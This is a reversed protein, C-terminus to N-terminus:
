YFTQCVGIEYTITAEATGEAKRAAIYERVMRRTIEHPKLGRVQRGFFNQLANAYREFTAPRYQEALYGEFKCRWQYLTVLSTREQRIQDGIPPSNKKAKILEKIEKRM